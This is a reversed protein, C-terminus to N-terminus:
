MLLSVLTAWRVTWALRARMARGTSKLPTLLYGIAFDLISPM